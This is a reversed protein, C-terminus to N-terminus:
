SEFEVRKIGSCAHFILSEFFYLSKYGDNRYLRSSKAKKSFKFIVVGRHSKSFFETTTM